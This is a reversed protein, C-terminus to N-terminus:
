RVVKPRRRPPRRRSRQMPYAITHTEQILPWFSPIATLSVRGVGEVEAVDKRILADLDDPALTLTGTEPVKGATM